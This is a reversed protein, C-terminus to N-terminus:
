KKKKNNGQKNRKKKAKNKSSPKILDLSVKEVAAKEEKVFKLSLKDVITSLILSYIMLVLILQLL